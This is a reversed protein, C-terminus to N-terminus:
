RAGGNQPFSEIQRHIRRLAQHFRDVIARDPSCLIREAEEYTIDVTFFVLRGRRATPRAPYGKSDLFALDVIDPTEFAM